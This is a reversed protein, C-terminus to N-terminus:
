DRRGASRRAGLYAALFGRAISVLDATIDALAAAEQEGADLRAALPPGERAPGAIWFETPAKHTDFGPVLLMAGGTESAELLPTLGGLDPQARLRNASDLAEEGLGLERLTQEPTFAAAQKVFKRWPGAGPLPRLLSRAVSHTRDSLADYVAVLRRCAEILQEAILGSLMIRDGASALVLSRLASDVVVQPKRLASNLYAEVFELESFGGPFVADPM